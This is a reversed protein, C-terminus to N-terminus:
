WTRGLRKYREKDKLNKERMTCMIQLPVSVIFSCPDTILCSAYPDYYPTSPSLSSHLFMQRSALRLSALRSFFPCLPFPSIASLCRGCCIVYACPKFAVHFFLMTFKHFQSTPVSYHRAQLSEGLPSPILQVVYM